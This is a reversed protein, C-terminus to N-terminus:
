NPARDWKSEFGSIGTPLAAQPFFPQRGGRLSSSRRVKEDYDNWEKESLDVEPFPNGSM